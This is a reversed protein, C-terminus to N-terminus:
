QLPAGCVVQYSRKGTKTFVKVCPSSPYKEGCRIKAMQLTEQDYSDWGYTLNGRIETKPCTSLENKQYLLAVLVLFTVKFM